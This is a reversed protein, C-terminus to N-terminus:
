LFGSKSLLNTVSLPLIRGRRTVPIDALSWRLIVRSTFRARAASKIFYLANCVENADNTFVRLPNHANSLRTM